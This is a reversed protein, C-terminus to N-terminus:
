SCIKNLAFTSMNWIQILWVQVNKIKKYKWRSQALILICPKTLYVASLVFGFIFSMCALLDDFMSDRGLFIFFHKTKPLFLHFFNQDFKKAHISSGLQNQHNRNAFISNVLSLKLQFNIVEKLYKSTQKM